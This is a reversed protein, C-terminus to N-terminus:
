NYFLMQSNHIICLLFCWVFCHCSLLSCDPGDFKEDQTYNQLTISIGTNGQWSYWCCKAGYKAM